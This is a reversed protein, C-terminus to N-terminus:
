KELRKQIMSYLLELLKIGLKSSKKYKKHYYICSEHSLKIMRLKSLNSSITKSQEHEYQLNLALYNQLNNEKIKYALIREEGYLFTNEDLLGINYIVEKKFLYFSGPLVDVKITNLNQKLDYSTLKKYIKNLIPLNSFIDSTITPLKWAPSYPIRGNTQVPSLFAPKKLKKYQSILKSLLNDDEIIIDNNSIAIYDYNENEIFKLGYNNGYAYGGNKESEIVRVNSNNEFEKSLNEFSQNESKNDVILVNVDVNQQNLINYTYTITDEFSKYNLILVIIKINM